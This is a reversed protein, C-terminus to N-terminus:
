LIFLTCRTEFADVQFYTWLPTFLTLLLIHGVPTAIESRSAILGVYSDWLLKTLQLIDWIFMQVVGPFCFWIQLHISVM